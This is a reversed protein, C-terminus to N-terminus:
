AIKIKNNQYFYAPSGMCETNFQTYYNEYNITCSRDVFFNIGYRLLSTKM